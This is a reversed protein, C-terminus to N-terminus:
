PQSRFREPAPTAPRILRRELEPKTSSWEVTFRRLIEPYNDRLQQTLEDLRFRREAPVFFELEGAPKGSLFDLIHWLDWWADPDAPHAVGVFVQSRDRIFRLRLESSKLIVESNGFHRWSYDAYVAAFGMEFLWPYDVKLEHVLPGTM